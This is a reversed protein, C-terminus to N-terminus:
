APELYLRLCVSWLLLIKKNTDGPLAFNINSRCSCPKCRECWTCKLPCVSLTEHITVQTIHSLYSVPGNHRGALWALVSQWSLDEGLRVLLLPLWLQPSPLNSKSSSSHSITRADEAEDNSAQERSVLHVLSARPWPYHGLKREVDDEGEYSLRRRVSGAVGQVLLVRVVNFSKAGPVDRSIFCGALTM